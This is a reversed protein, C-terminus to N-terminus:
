ILSRSDLLQCSVTKQGLRAAARNTRRVYLLEDVNINYMKCVSLMGMSDYPIEIQKENGNVLPCSALVDSYKGPKTTSLDEILKRVPVTSHINARIADIDAVQRVCMMDYTGALREVKRSLAQAEPVEAIQAWMRVFPLIIHLIVWNQSEAFRQSPSDAEEVGFCFDTEGDVSIPLGEMKVFMQECWALHTKFKRTLHSYSAVLLTTQLLFLDRNALLMVVQQNMIKGFTTPSSIENLQGVLSLLEAREAEPWAQVYATSLLFQKVAQGQATTRRRGLLGVSATGTNTTLKSANKVLKVALGPVDYTLAALCVALIFQPKDRSLRYLAGTPQQQHHLFQLTFLKQLQAHSGQKRICRSLAGLLSPLHELGFGLSTAAERVAVFSILSLPRSSAEVVAGANFTQLDTFTRLLALPLADVETILEQLKTPGADDNDEPLPLVVSESVGSASRTHAYEASVSATCGMGIVWTTASIQALM